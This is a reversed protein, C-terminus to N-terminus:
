VVQLVGGSVQVHVTAGTTQDVMRLRSCRPAHIGDVEFWADDPDVYYTTPAGGLYVTSAWQPVTGGGDVSLLQYSTGIPLRTPGGAARYLMDGTTTLLDALAAVVSRFGGRRM